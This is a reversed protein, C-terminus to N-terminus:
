TRFQSFNQKTWCIYFDIKKDLLKWTKKKGKVGFMRKLDSLAALIYLDDPLAHGPGKIFALIDKRANSVLGSDYEQSQELRTTVSTIALEANTFNEGVKLNTSLQHVHHVFNIFDEPSSQTEWSLHRYTMTYASLVNIINFRVLNSSKSVDLNFDLSIVLPLKPSLSVQSNLEEVKKVHVHIEWWFQEPYSLKENAPVLKYIEGNEVKMRFDNREEVTLTQWLSDADDLDINAIRDNLDDEDDSDLNENSFDESVRQLIELTKTKDSSATHRNQLEQSVCDKYFEESCQSHCPARYCQLGCYSINCRPCSYKSNIKLCVQCLMVQGAKACDMRAPM